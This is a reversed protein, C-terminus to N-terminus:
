TMIIVGLVIHLFFDFSKESSDPYSMAAMDRRCLTPWIGWFHLTVEFKIPNDNIHNIKTKNTQQSKNQVIAFRLILSSVSVLFTEM